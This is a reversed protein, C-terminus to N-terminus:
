RDAELEDMLALIRDCEEVRGYCRETQWEHGSLEGHDAAQEDMIDREQRIDARLRNWKSQDCPWPKGCSCARVIRRGVMRKPMEAHDSPSPLASIGQPTSPKVTM